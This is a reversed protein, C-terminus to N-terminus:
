EAGAETPASETNDLGAAIIDDVSVDTSELSTEYTARLQQEFDLKWIGNEERFICTKSGSASSVTLYMDGNEEIIVSIESSLNHLGAAVASNSLLDVGNSYGYLGTYSLGASFDTLFVQTNVTYLEFVADWDDLSILQIIHEYQEAADQQSGTWGCSTSLMIPFIFALFIFRM